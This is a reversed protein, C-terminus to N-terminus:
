EDGVSVALELPVAGREAEDGDGPDVAEPEVERVNLLASAPDPMLVAVVATSRARGLTELDSSTISMSAMLRDRLDALYAQEDLVPDGEPDDPPAARHTELLTELPENPFSERMLAQLSRRELETSLEDEDGPNASQWSSLRAELRAAQLAPEDLEISWTGAVDITLEPRQAMAEALKLLQERDPPSLEAEGPQFSLVGFDESDVGVLNGLLRFPSTVVRTILNGLAQMVVSGIGFEPSDLDGEVPVDLDIVGNSDKLLAIALGLPLNGADPHDSKEGLQIERVVIGNEGRLKRQDLVYDLDTDLRGQEIAYGAFQVSYPSMRNIELNRFVMQLETQSTPDWANLSGNIRALGFENVQGELAVTAPESSTTAIASIDGDMDRIAADFPLPLSADSFDLATDDMRVGGITIDPLPPGETSAESTANSAILVDGINTSLDEAIHLRGYLDEFEIISTEVRQESWDVEFRDLNLQSWAALRENRVTDNIELDNVAMSGALALLQEPGHMLDAALNVSGGQLSVRAISDVVPQAVAIAVAEGRVRGEARPAPFATITGDFGVAGGSALQASVNLPMATGDNVDIGNLTLDLSRIGLEVPTAFTQDTVNVSDGNVSVEHIALSIPLPRDANEAAGDDPGAAPPLLDLLNISGDERRIVEAGLGDITVREVVGDLEALGFRGGGMEIRDMTVLTENAEDTQLALEDIAGDLSSVELGLGGADLWTTYAFDAQIGNFVVDFPLYFDLYQRINPLSSGRMEVQGTSRFPVLQLDGQWALYDTQNIQVRVTQRGAHDPLTRIDDVEVSVPGLVGAFNDAPGDLFALEADVVELRQVIARPPPPPEEETVADPAPPPLLDTALRMLRTDIADFREDFISLGEIDIRKFNFAWDIISRTQVDVLLRDLDVLRTGDTDDLAFDTLELTFVYPNMRLEGISVTREIEAFRNVVTREVLWPALLFGGITYLTFVLVLRFRWYRWHIWPKLWGPIRGDEAPDAPTPSHEASASQTDAM